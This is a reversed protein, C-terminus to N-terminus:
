HVDKKIERKVIRRVDNRVGNERNIQAQVAGAHYNPSGSLIRHIAKAEKKSIKM